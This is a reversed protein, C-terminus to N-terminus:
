DMGVTNLSFIILMLFPLILISDSQLFTGSLASPLCSCPECESQSDRTHHSNQDVLRVRESYLGRRSSPLGSYCKRIHVIFLYCPSSHHHCLGQEVHKTQFSAEDDAFHTQIFCLTHRSNPLDNWFCLIGLSVTSHSKGFLM